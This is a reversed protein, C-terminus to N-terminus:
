NSMPVLAQKNLLIRDDLPTINPIEQMNPIGLKYVIWFLGKQSVQSGKCHWHHLTKRRRKLFMLPVNRLQQLYHSWVQYMYGQTIAVWLWLGFRPRMHNVTQGGPPKKHFCFIHSLERLVPRIKCSSMVYWLTALPCFTIFEALLRHVKILNKSTTVCKANVKPNQYWQLDQDNRWCYQYMDFNIMPMARSRCTLVHDRSWKM